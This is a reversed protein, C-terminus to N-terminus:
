HLLLLMHRSSGPRPLAVYRPSVISSVVLTVLGVSSLRVSRYVSWYRVVSLSWAFARAVYRCTVSLWWLRWHIISRCYVCPEKGKVAREWESGHPHHWTTCSFLLFAPLLTLMEFLILAKLRTNFAACIFHVLIFPAAANFAGEYRLCATNESVQFDVSFIFINWWTWCTLLLLYCYMFYLMRLLLVAGLRCLITLHNFAIARWPFGM